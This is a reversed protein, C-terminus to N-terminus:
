VVSKRDQADIWGPSVSCGSLDIKEAGPFVTGGSPEVQLIREDELLIDAAYPADGTGDYLLGGTLLTRM